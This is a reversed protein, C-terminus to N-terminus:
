TQPKSTLFRLLKRATADFSRQEKESADWVLPAEGLDIADLLLQRPHTHRRKPQHVVDRIIEGGIMWSNDLHRRITKPSLNRDYLHRIFPRLEAVLAEGVPIDAASGAWSNPWSDMLALLKTLQQHPPQKPSSPPM